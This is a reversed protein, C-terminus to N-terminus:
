RPLPGCREEIIVRYRERVLRIIAQRADPSPVVPLPEAMVASAAAGMTGAEPAPARPAVGATTADGISALLRADDPAIPVACQYDRTRVSMSGDPLLRVVYPVAELPPAIPASSRALVPLAGASTPEAPAEQRATAELFGGQTRARETDVAIEDKATEKYLRTEDSEAIAAPTPRVGDDRRAVPPAQNSRGAATDGAPTSRAIKPEPKERATASSGANPASASAPPQARAPAPASAPASSRPVGPATRSAVEAAPHPATPPRSGFSVMWALAVLVVAAAAAAPMPVRWPLRWWGARRTPASAEIRGRIRAALDGPVPPTEAAVAQRLLEIDEKLARCAPCDGLHAEVAARREGSPLEGDVLASLAECPHDSWRDRSM